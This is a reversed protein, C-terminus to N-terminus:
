DGSRMALLVATTTSSLATSRRSSDARPRATSRSSCSARRALPVRAPLSPASTSFVTIDVRLTPRPLQLRIRPCNWGKRLTAPARCLLLRAASPPPSRTPSRRSASSPTWPSSISTRSSSDTAFGLQLGVQVQYIYAIIGGMWGSSTLARDKDVGVVSGDKLSRVIVELGQAVNCKVLRSVCERRIRVLEDSSLMQSLLQRRGLFLADIHQVVANFLRYERM